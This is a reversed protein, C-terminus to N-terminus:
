STTLFARSSFTQKIEKTLESLNSRKERYDDMDSEMFLTKNGCFKLFREKIEEDSFDHVPHMKVWLHFHNGMVCFGMIDSFYLSSFKKIIKVLAKKEVDQFPFGDLATQSIVPYVTKGRQQANQINKTHIREPTISIQFIFHENAQM